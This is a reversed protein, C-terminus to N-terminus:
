NLDDHCWYYDCDDYCPNDDIWFKVLQRLKHIYDFRHVAFEPHRAFWGNREKRRKDSYLKYINESAYSFIQVLYTQSDLDFEIEDFDKIERNFIQIILLKWKGWYESENNSVSIWTETISDLIENIRQIDKPADRVWLDWIPITIENSKM